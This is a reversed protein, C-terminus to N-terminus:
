LDTIIEDVNLPFTDKNMNQIENAFFASTIGVLSRSFRKQLEMLNDSTHWDTVVIGNKNAAATAIFSSLWNEKFFKKNPNRSLVLNIARGSDNLEKLKLELDIINDKTEIKVNRFETAM